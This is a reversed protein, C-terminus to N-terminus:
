VVIIDRESNASKRTRPDSTPIGTAFWDGSGGSAGDGAEDDDTEKASGSVGGGDPDASEAAAAEAEFPSSRKAM